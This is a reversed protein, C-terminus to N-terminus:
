CFSKAASTRGYSSKWSEHGNWGGRGSGCKTNILNQENRFFEADMHQGNGYNCGFAVASGYYSSVSRAYFSNGTGFFQALGEIAKDMDATSFYVSTECHVGTDRLRNRKTVNASGMYSTSNATFTYIGDTAGIPRSFAASERIISVLLLASFLSASVM